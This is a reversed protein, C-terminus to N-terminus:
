LIMDTLRISAIKFVEKFAKDWEEEYTNSVREKMESLISEKGKGRVAMIFPFGFKEVYIQNHLRFEEFEEKSLRDLGAGAQEEKSLDSMKIKAGLDPHARLISIQLSESSNKVITVMAELLHNRSRFPGSKWANEAVWPSGEFVWGLTKTFESVNMDNIEQISVGM